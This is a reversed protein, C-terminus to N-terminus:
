PSIRARYFRQSVANTATYDTNTWLGSIPTDTAVVMWNTLLLDPCAELTLLFYPTTRVIVTASM